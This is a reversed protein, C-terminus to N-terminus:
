PDRVKIVKRKYVSQKNIMQHQLYISLSRCKLFTVFMAGLIHAGHTGEKGHVRKALLGIIPEVRTSASCYVTNTDNVDGICGKTIEFWFIFWTNDVKFLFLTATVHGLTVLGTVMM